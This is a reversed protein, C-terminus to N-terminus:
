GTILNKIEKITVGHISGLKGENLMKLLSGASQIDLSKDLKDDIEKAAERSLGINILNVMREDCAGVEMFSHLKSSIINENREILVSSLLYEYCRIANSLRFRIDNNIVKIVSRVSRNVDYKESKEEDWDIQKLIIDRLSHGQIWKKSILVVYKVSYGDSPIYVGHEYLKTTVSLLREFLDASKPHPLIWNKLDKQSRIFSLLSDQQIYGVTPNAELTLPAVELSDNATKITLRLNEKDEDNLSLENATLTNELDGNAYEKILKNAITYFKFQDKETHDYLGRLASIVKPLDNNLTTYYTPVKDAVEPVDDFYDKYKWEDPEILFVNGSFHQLMRGARGTINKIKVDEIREWPQYMASQQMPNRLFLNKAPLNVGEALTSTCVVYSIHDERVLNEIMVRLSSPLPGYHFAVGKKLNQALSFGSHIFKKVYDAAEELLPNEINHSVLAAIENAVNECYDTRNQYIINSQGEGLRYIINSFKRGKFEKKIITKNQSNNRTIILERNKPTVSLVIKAVPSHQTIEKTFEIKPLVASFANQYSQSPMSIIVQPYNVEMLKEITLHLLVGRSSDAINQAEDIFLYDFSLDGSQLVEYLREQTMIFLTRPAFEGEKPVTCVEVKINNYGTLLDYVKGAVESILARTPVIIAAFSEDSNTVKKIIYSLIIHTKGASTPAATIIDKELLLDEWLSRQFDTLLFDLDEVTNLSERFDIQAQSYFGLETQIQDFRDSLLKVNPFDGENIFLNKAIPIIDKHEEGVVDLLMSLISAGERRIKDDKSQYFIQATSVLKKIVSRELSKSNGALSHVYNSFLNSSALQYANSEFVKESLKDAFNTM